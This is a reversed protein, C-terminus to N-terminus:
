KDKVEHQQEQGTARELATRAKPPQNLLWHATPPFYLDEALDACLLKNGDYTKAMVWDKYKQEGTLHYLVAFLEYLIGGREDKQQAATKALELWQPDGTHLTAMALVHDWKVTWTGAGKPDKEGLGNISPKGILSENAKFLEKYM